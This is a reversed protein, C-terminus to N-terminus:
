ETGGTVAAAESELQEAVLPSPKDFYYGQAFDIGLERLDDAVEKDEVFEAITEKGTAKAVDNIAKVTVRDSENKLMDKVFVGDIKVYDVQLNKLYAFSSLGSGFDDLAFRCGYQKLEAILDNACELDNIAATETIEFCLKHAPFEKGSLKDTIFKKTDPCGVSQGSLNISCMSLDALEQPNNNLWEIAANVVWRDIETGLRYREVLPIFVGPSIIKGDEDHMRLLMEYHKGCEATDQLSTIKQRYLEFRNEQLASKIQNISMADLRKKDLLDMCSDFTIVVDRGLEKAQMCAIDAANLMDEVVGSKADIKTIGISAGIRFTQGEWCYEFNRIAERVTNAVVQAQDVSCQHLLIAFEDGGLRAVVNSTDGGSHAAVGSDDEGLRAVVDSTRVSETLIQAVHSLIEDGAAHGCTDNVAKFHDLDIFCLAHSIQEEQAQYFFEKMARGFARRNYLKTLPDHTAQFSLSHTLASFNDSLQKIEEPGSSVGNFRAGSDAAKADNRLTQLPKSITRGAWYWSLLVLLSFLGQIILSHSNMGAEATELRVANQQIAKNIELEIREVCVSIASAIQDYEKLLGAMEQSLDDPDSVAVKQVFGNITSVGSASATIEAVNESDLLQNSEALAALDGAILQGKNFAGSALYTEGSGIVLDTSIMYQSIDASTRQFDKQWLLADVHAQSQESVASFRESLLYRVGNGGILSILVLIALYSRIKM